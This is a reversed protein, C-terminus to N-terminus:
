GELTLLKGLLKFSQGDLYVVNGLAYYTYLDIILGGRTLTITYPEFVEIIFGHRLLEKVIRLM